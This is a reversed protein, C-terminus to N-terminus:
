KNLPIVPNAETSGCLVTMLNVTLLQKHEADLLFQNDVKDDKISLKNIAETTIETAGKVILQRAQIIANAQQVQLMANAIEAAYSLDVLNAFDVRVGAIALREQSLLKLRANIAVSSKSLTQENDQDSDYNYESVVQRLVANFVESVYVTLETQINFISEAPNVVRWQGLMSANVPNGSKDNIKTRESPQQHTRTSVKILRYFPNRWSLGEGYFSGRNSGFFTAAAEINPPLIFFGFLLVLNLVLLVISIFIYQNILLITIVSTLILCLLLMFWGNLAKSREFQREVIDNNNSM